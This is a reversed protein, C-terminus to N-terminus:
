GEALSAVLVFSEGRNPLDLCNDKVPLAKGDVKASLIRGGVWEIRFARRRFEPFGDGATEARLHITAGRRELHLRTHLHRGERFSFSLGDDEHLESVHAGDALPLFARLVMTEPFHEMTSAPVDPWLPVVAGARVLLPIRDLPAPLHVHRRGAHCAGDHWGYWDGGPLYVNRAACGPALIPAVLLDNGLLYQDDVHRCALDDQFDHILPRQVPRGDQSSQVFAAYLYPMLRYRLRIAERIPREYAEGFSWPYQDQPSCSHNRCFPTLVGYQTWRVLLEPTTPDAFGGIDAGVFPQGSVGLGAAMPLSMALHDWRSFNDGMWNAAYRQIGSFGARSLVFTRQGPMAALLGEVTGMAMLLAYQNRIRGHPSPDGDCDFRMAEPDVDGTAPENMDNWIGALGSRVHAANWKGWWRRTAAQSFDPFATRGPWVQGIYLGGSETRCFLDEALGEDFVAYGPEAKVGPDIITVVRLGQRRLEALMAAPDPFLDRNWTFVRYGDMYDIDLWLVDCPIDQDRLRRALALTEDQSYKLWRCQHYGLAWLPPRAMRGTLHTYDALIDAMRPGAFIYETYQGGAFQIRCQGGHGFDLEARHGNDLFFGAMPQGPLSPDAHYFFPISIYYPDFVTSTPDDQPDSTDRTRVVNKDVDPALIDTNWLTYGRGARNFPGTKEGLGYIDDGHRCARATVFHDNLVGYALSRGAADTATRLITSGDARTALLGFSRRDIRLALAATRLHIAADDGTVTFPPPPGFDACVAWTPQEDFRGARSIKIRLVDAKLVDVRVQEGDVQLLIGAPTQKWGTVTTLYDLHRTLIRTNM